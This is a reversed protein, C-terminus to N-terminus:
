QPGSASTSFHMKRSSWRLIQDHVGAWGGPGDSCMDSRALHIIAYCLLITKYWRGQILTSEVYCKTATRRIVRIVIIIKAMKLFDHRKLKRM